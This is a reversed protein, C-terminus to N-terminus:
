RRTSLGISEVAPALAALAVRRGRLDLLRAQRAPLLERASDAIALDRDLRFGRADLWSPLTGPEWGFRFPEGLRAVVAAMARTGISPSDLRARGLYTMALRSGPASYAGIARVSADIAPETLYMTVGEWLTLTPQDLALGAAGLAGPLGSVPSVEFDWPLYRAPSIVGLGALVERKHRQTAPHDVEIVRADGLEPLRLARCDYGAGLLV